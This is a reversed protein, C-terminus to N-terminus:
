AGALIRFLDRQAHSGGIRHLAPRFGDYLAAARAHEGAQVAGLFEAVPLAVDRVVRGQTTASQAWRSLTALLNGAAPSGVKLLPMLHHLSAFVLEADDVHREAVDALPRWRDGADVGRAELRLLLSAANCQDLYFDDDLAAALEGDYIDLVRAVNGSALHFLAEHWFLHYRFNNGQDFRSRLGQLWAVGDAARGQMEM